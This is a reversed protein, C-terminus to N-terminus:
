SSARSTTPTWRTPPNIPTTSVPTKALRATLAKPVELASPQL